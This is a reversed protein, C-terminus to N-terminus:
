YAAEMSISKCPDVRPIRVVKGNPPGGRMQDPIFVVWLQENNVIYSNNYIKEEGKCRDYVNINWLIDYDSEWGSGALAMTAGISFLALLIVMRKLM